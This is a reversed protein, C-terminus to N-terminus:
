QCVEPKAGGSSLEFSFGDSGGRILADVSISKSITGYFPIYQSVKASFSNDITANMQFKSSAYKAELMGNVNLEGEISTGTCSSLAAKVNGYATVKVGANAGDGFNAWINADVGAIAKVYGSVIVFNFDKTVNLFQKGAAFFFGTLHNNNQQPWCNNKIYMYQNVMQWMSSNAQVPHDGMLFGITYVGGIPLPGEVTAQGAGAFYFGEKDVQMEVTGKVKASGLELNDITLSGHLISNDYDYVMTFAGLPTSSKTTIKSGDVQVDGYVKFTMYNDDMSKNAADKNVMKGSFTLLDWDNNVVNMSGNDLVLKYGPKGKSLDLEYNKPLVVAYTAQPGATINFEAPITEFTKGPKEEVQGKITIKNADISINSKGVTDTTSFHVFGKGEFETSVNFIKETNATYNLTIQMPAVRPAKVDISGILDFYDPGNFIGTPTFSALPNNNIYAATTKNSLSFINEDNSLLQIYDIGIVANPLNKFNKLTACYSDPNATISFRWHPQQNSGVKTDYVMVANEPNIDTLYKAGGGIALSKFQFTDMVMMDSRLNFWTFPIDLQKTKVMANRSIVGGKTPDLQWKSVVLQWNEFAITLPKGTAPTINNNDLVIDDVNIKFDKPSSNEVHATLTMGLHITKDGALYSKSSDAVGNFEIFKLSISKGYANSLTFLRNTNANNGGGFLVSPKPLLGEANFSHVITNQKLLNDAIYNDTVLAQIASINTNVTKDDKLEGLYFNNSQGTFNLYTTPYNFSNDIINIYGTLAGKGNSQKVLQLNTNAPVADRNLKVNYKDLLRFKLSSVADLTVSNEKAIGIKQNGIMTAKFVVDRIRVLDNGPLLNFKSDSNSLKITGTVLVEDPNQTKVIKEVSLPFGYISPILMDKFSQLKFSALGVPAGDKMAVTAIQEDGNVTFSTDLTAGVIFSQGLSMPIGPIYYAGKDTTYAWLDSASTGGATNNNMKVYVKAHKVPVGDLYVFGNAAAGKVLSINIIDPKVSENNQVNKIIPIYTNTYNDPGMIRFSYNNISVNEFEFSVLGEADAIKPANGELYVRAGPVALNTAQNKVVFTMRHKRRYLKQDIKAVGAAPSITVISTDFYGPDVPIIKLSVFSSSPVSLTYSGNPDSLVVEGNTRKIYSQVGIYSGQEASSVNITLKAAPVMSYTDYNQAGMSKLPFNINTLDTYGYKHLTLSVQLDKKAEDANLNAQGIVQEFYGQNDTYTFIDTQKSGTAKGSILVSGLAKQSSSEQVRGSVKTLQPEVEVEVDNGSGPIQQITSGFSAGPQTPDSCVQVFYKSYGSFLQKIPETTGDEKLTTTYLKEYVTHYITNADTGIVEDGTVFSNSKLNPNILLEKKYLNDGEGLPLNTAKQVERFITVKLGKVSSGKPGAAKVTIARDIVDCVVQKCNYGMFPDVVIEMDSSAIRANEPVIYYFRELTQIDDADYVNANDQLAEVEDAAAPGSKIGLNFGGQTKNTINLGNSIGGLKFNGAGLTPVVPTKTNIMGQIGTNFGNNGADIGGYQKENTNGENNYTYWDGADEEYGMKWKMQGFIGGGPQTQKDPDQQKMPCPKSDKSGESQSSLIGTTVMGKKNLNVVDITFNGNADTTGTGMVQGADLLRTDTKGDASKFIMENLMACSSSLANDIYTVTNDKSTIKYGVMVSFPQNSYPRVQKKDDTTWKYAIQGSLMSKPPDISTVSYTATVSSDYILKNPTFNKGSYVISVGKHFAMEEAQYEDKTFAKIKGSDPQVALIYYEDGPYLDNAILDHFKVFSVDKGKKDKELQTVGRGVEVYGRLGANDGLMGEAAPVTGPKNKRYLKITIGAEFQKTDTKYVYYGSSDKDWKPDKNEYLDVGQNGMKYSPFKKEVYLKLSYGYVRTSVSGANVDVTDKKVINIPTPKATLRTAIFPMGINSYYKNQIQLNYFVSDNQLSEPLYIMSSFSGDKKTMVTTTLLPLKVPYKDLSDKKYVTVEVPVNGAKHLVNANGISYNIAGHVNVQVNNLEDAAKKYIFPVSTASQVQKGAYDYATVTLLYTNGDVLGISDCQQETKALSTALIMKQKYMGSLLDQVSIQPRTISTSYNVGAIKLPQKQRNLSINANKISVDYRYISTTAYATTDIKTENSPPNVKYLFAWNVVFDSNNNVQVQKASDNPFLITLKSASQQTQVTNVLPANKYVFSRVESKGYNRYSGGSLGPLATVYWAYRRGEILQPQGPGYVITNTNTILEYFPPTTASNVADAPNKSPNLMEVIRFRYQTGPDSGAPIAWSFIVNQPVNLINAGFSTENDLPKILLPPELQTLRITTCGSPSAGSLPTGPADYDFAQVCFDYTGEPLGNQNFIDNATINQLDFSNVDFLSEVTSIDAMFPVRPQLLIPQSPRYNQKTTIKIGNSGTITAKLYVKLTGGSTNNLLLVVKGITTAYDSLKTSYPPTINFTVTVQASTNIYGALMTAAILLKLLLKKM